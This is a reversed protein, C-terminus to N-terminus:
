KLKDFNDATDKDLRLELFRPLFLSYKGSSDVIKTNYKASIIKGNTYERTFEERQTDTFGSGVDVRM